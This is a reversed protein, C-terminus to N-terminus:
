HQTQDKIAPTVLPAPENPETAKEELDAAKTLVKASLEPDATAQALRFLIM